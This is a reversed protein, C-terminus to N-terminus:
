RSLVLRVNTSAQRTPGENPVFKAIVRLTVQGRHRLAQLAGGRAAIPIVLPNRWTRAAGDLALETGSVGRGLILLRGPGVATISLRATGAAPDRRLKLFGAAPLPSRRECLRVVDWPNASVRDRGAGCDVRDSWTDLPKPPHTYWHEENRGSRLVDAGGGGWMRDSGAEGAVIDADPGGHVKDKGSGGYVWDKGAEGREIDDEPGLDLIDNGGGGKGVDAGTTSGFHSEALSLNDGETTRPEEELRDDGEGGELLDNGDEGDVDDDGGGGQLTDNGGSGFIWDRGESGRLRDDGPGGVLAYTGSLVDDASGGILFEVGAFRDGEGAAGGGDADAQVPESRAAYSVMDFSDPGLDYLDSGDATPTAFVRDHGDGSHIEDHGTGPDIEDGASGTSIRDDGSGGGVLEVYENRYDGRFASGDFSDDGDSLEVRMSALWGSGPEYQVCIKGCYIQKAPKPAHMTCNAPSGPPGGGTCGPGPNLPAGADIVRLDVLDGSKASETVTVQNQERAAAAFVLTAKNPTDTTVYPSPPPDTPAWVKEEVSVEAAMAPASALLGLGCAACAAILLRLNVNRINL